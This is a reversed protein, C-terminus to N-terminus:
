RRGNFACCSREDSGELLTAWVDCFREGMEQASEVTWERVDQM